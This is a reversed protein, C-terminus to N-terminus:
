ASNEAHSLAVGPHCSSKIHELAALLPNEGGDSPPPAFSALDIDLKRLNVQGGCFERQEAFRVFVNIAEDHSFDVLLHVPFNALNGSPIQTLSLYCCM